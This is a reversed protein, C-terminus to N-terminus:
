GPFGRFEQFRITEVTKFFAYFKILRAQDNQSTCMVARMLLTYDLRDITEVPSGAVQAEISSFAGADDMGLWNEVVSVDSIGQFVEGVGRIIEGWNM